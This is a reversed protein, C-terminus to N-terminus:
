PVGAEYKTVYTVRLQPAGAGARGKVEMEGLAFGEAFVGLIIARPMSDGTTSGWLRLIRAIDIQVTGTDGAHVVQVGTISTDPVLVSKPGFDRLIPFANVFFSDGPFAVVPRTLTLSLTARVIGVSDVAVKPLTLRLLSHAAPLGGIALVGAPPLGPPPSQVFTTFVATDSLSRKLTDQPPQGHVFYSLLPARTSSHGSSVAVVTPKDAIVRAGISVVGSDDPAPVVSTPLRFELNGALTDPVPVTDLVAADVFYAQAQAYTMTTDFKAPLRYFVLRPHASTDQFVYQLEVFLSDPPFVAQVTDTATQLWSTPVKGFRMLILSKLSDLSSAALYTAEQTVVYGRATTDASDVATLLTDALQIQRSPCLAPCRGPTTIKESCGAIAALAALFVSPWVFTRAM